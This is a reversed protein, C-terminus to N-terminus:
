LVFEERGKAKIDNDIWSMVKQGDSCTALYDDMNESSYIDLAGHKGRVIYGRYSWYIM